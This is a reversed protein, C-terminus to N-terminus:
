EKGPATFFKLIIDAEKKDLKHEKKLHEYLIVGNVQNLESMLTKLEKTYLCQAIKKSPTCDAETLPASDNNNKLSLTYFSDVFDYDKPVIKRIKCKKEIRILEESLDKLIGQIKMLEEYKKFKIDNSEPDPGGGGGTKVQAPVQSITLLSILVFSLIKM